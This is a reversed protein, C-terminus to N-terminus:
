KVIRGSRVITAGSPKSRNRRAPSFLLNCHAHLNVLLDQGFCHLTATFPANDQRREGLHLVRALDGGADLVLQFLDAQPVDVRGVKEADVPMVLGLRFAAKVAADIVDLEGRRQGPDLRADDSGDAFPERGSRVLDAGRIAAEGRAQDGAFEVRGRLLGDPRRGAVVAAATREVAGEHAAIGDGNQRLLHALLAEGPQGLDAGALDDGGRTALAVDLFDVVLAMFQGAGAAVRQHNEVLERLEAVGAPMVVDGAAGDLLQEELELALVAPEGAEARGGTGGAGDIRAIVQAGNRRVHLDHRALGRLTRGQQEVPEAPMADLADAVLMDRPDVVDAVGIRNDRNVVLVAHAGQAQEVFRRPLLVELADPHRGRQDGPERQEADGRDAIDDHRDLGGLVVLHVLVVDDEGHEGVRRPHVIGPHDLEALRAAGVAVLQRRGVERRM